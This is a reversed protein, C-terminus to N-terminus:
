RHFVPFYFKSYIHSIPFSLSSLFHQCICVTVDVSFLLSILPLVSGLFFFRHCVSAVSLSYERILAILFLVCLLSSHQFLSSVTILVLRFLQYNFKGRLKSLQWKKKFILLEKFSFIRNKVPRQSSVSRKKVSHMISLIPM